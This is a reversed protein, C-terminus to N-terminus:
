RSRMSFRVVPSTNPVPGESVRLCYFCDLPKLGNFVTADAIGRIGVDQFLLWDKGPRLNIPLPTLRSVCDLGDCTPGWVTCQASPGRRNSVKDLGGARERSTETSGPLSFLLDRDYCSSLVPSPQMQTGRLLAGSLSGYCGDDIYYMASGARMRKDTSCGNVGIAAACEKEVQIPRTTNSTDTPAICKRGIVAAVTSWVGSAMLYETADASVVIPRDSAGAGNAIGTGAVRLHRALSSKLASLPEGRAGAEGLGTVHLRRFSFVPSPSAPGNLSKSRCARALDTRISVTEAVRRATEVTFAVALDIYRALAGSAGAENTVDIAPSGICPNGGSALSATLVADNYCAGSVDISFGVIYSANEPKDNGSMHRTEDAAVAIEVVDKVAAGYVAELSDKRTPQSPLALKVLIECPRMRAKPRSSLAKQGPHINWTDGLPDVMVHTNAKQQAERIRRLEDACDM